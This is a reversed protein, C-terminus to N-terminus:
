HLPIKKKDGATKEHKVWWKFSTESITRVKDKTFHRVVSVTAWSIIFAYFLLVVVTWTNM